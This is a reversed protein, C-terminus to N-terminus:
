GMNVEELDEEEAGKYESFGMKFKMEGRNVEKRRVNFYFTMRNVSNGYRPM